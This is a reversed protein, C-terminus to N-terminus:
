LIPVLTHTPSSSKNERRIRKLKYIYFAPLSSVTIEANLLVDVTCSKKQIAETSVGHEVQRCQSAMGFGIDDADLRYALGKSM